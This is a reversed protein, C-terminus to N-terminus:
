ASRGNVLLALEVSRPGLRSRFSDFVAQVEAEPAANWRAVADRWFPWFRERKALEAPVAGCPFAFEERYAVLLSGDDMVGVFIDGAQVGFRRLAEHLGLAMQVADPLDLLTTM